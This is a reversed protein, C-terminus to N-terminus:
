LITKVIGGEVRIAAGNTASALPSAFYVVTNAVEETGAFRQLLSTPRNNTFFLKEAEITTIKEDKAMEKLFRKAGSSKTPGPLITNVTVGSGKTLEALGRSVGLIATKTVGYHIMGEPIFIASESSIFIIRGENRLLMSPLIHKSLRVGSMVNVEFFRFWDSDSIETFIKPEFIGM